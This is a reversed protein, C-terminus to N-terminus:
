IIGTQVIWCGPEEDNISLVDWFTYMKHARQKQKQKTKNKKIIKKKMEKKMEHKEFKSMDSMISENDWPLWAIEWTVNICVHYIHTRTDQLIM